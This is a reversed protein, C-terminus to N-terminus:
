HYNKIARTAPMEEYEPNESIAKAIEYSTEITTYYKLVDLIFGEDIAQRMSYHHFADYSGDAKMVGFTQLTKPKPTATFAYFYLNKHKGQALLTETMVDMSDKLEEETKETKFEHMKATLVAKLNEEDVHIDMTSTYYPISITRKMFGHRRGGFLSLIM